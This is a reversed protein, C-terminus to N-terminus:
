KCAVEISDSAIAIAVDLWVGDERDCGDRRAEGDEDVEMGRAWAMCDRGNRVDARRGTISVSTPMRGHQEM